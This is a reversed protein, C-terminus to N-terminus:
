IPSCLVHHAQRRGAQLNTLPTQLQTMIKDLSATAGAAGLPGIWQTLKQWTNVAPDAEEAVAILSNAAGAPQDHGAARQFRHHGQDRHGADRQGACREAAGRQVPPYRGAGGRGAPDLSAWSARLTLSAANTGGFAAGAAAMNTSVTQVGQIFAVFASPGAEVLKLWSDWATNLTNMQALQDANMVLQVSVDGQLQTLGQGMAKYGQVLGAVQVM